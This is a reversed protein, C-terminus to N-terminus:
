QHALSDSAFDLHADHKYFHRALRESLLSVYQRRFQRLPKEAVPVGGNAPFLVEGVYKQWVERGNDEMDYVTIQTDAKGQYLTQGKLLEFTELDIQVVTDADLAEALESLEDWDREDTWNEVERPEVVDIKPVNDALLQSVRRAVERDAGGHRYELSSPPRCIVVVRKGELAQCQAEIVNGHVLYVATALIQHLCGTNPTLLALGLLLAALPRLRPPHSRDM